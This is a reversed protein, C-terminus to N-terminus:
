SKFQELWFQLKKLEINAVKSKITNLENQNVTTEWWKEFNKIKNLYEAAIDGSEFLLNNNKLFNMLDIGTKSFYFNKEDLIFIFPIKLNIIEFFMTSFYDFILIKSKYIIEFNNTIQNSRINLKKKIIKEDDQLTYRKEFYKKFILKKSENYNKLFLVRNQYLKEYNVNQYVYRQFDNAINPGLVFTVYKKKFNRYNNIKSIVQLANSSIDKKRFKYGWTFYKDSIEYDHCGLGLQNSISYNGGHQSIYIKPKDISSWKMLSFKLIENELHSTTTFIAKPLKPYIKESLEEYYTFNELYAAPVNDVILNVLEKKLLLKSAEKKFNDRIVCKKKISNLNLHYINRHIFPLIKFRSRFFLKILFFQDFKSDILLTTNKNILKHLVFLYIKMKVKFIYGYIKKEKKIRYSFKNNSRQLKSFFNLNFNLDNSNVIFDAYDNNIFINTNKAIKLKKKIFRLHYKRMLYIKLFEDLWPGLLFKYNEKKYNKNHIKNFSHTLAKLLFNKKKLFEKEYFKM